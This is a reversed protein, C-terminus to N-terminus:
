GNLKSLEEQLQAAVERVSNLNEPVEVTEVQGGLLITWVAKGPAGNPNANKIVDTEFAKNAARTVPGKVGDIEEWPLFGWEFLLFQWLRIAENRGGDPTEKIVTSWDGVPADLM